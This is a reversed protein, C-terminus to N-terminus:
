FRRSRDPARHERTDFLGKSNAYLIGSIFVAGILAALLSGDPGFSGGTLIAPKGAVPTSRLLGDPNGVGLLAGETFDWAIHMAMSMWLRGSAMYLLGMTLGGNLAIEAAQLWSAHSLHAAGFAASSLALGWGPGFARSFLRLLIARFALEELIGSIYSNFVLFSFWNRLHGVQVHYLGLAWLLSLMAVLMTFGILVGVLLEYVTSSSPMVERPLRREGTKVAVAYALLAVLPGLLGIQMGAHEPLHLWPFQMLTAFFFFAAGM